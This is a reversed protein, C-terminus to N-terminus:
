SSYSFHHRVVTWNKPVIWIFNITLDFLDYLEDELNIMSKLDPSDKIKELLPSTIKKFFIEKLTKQSKIRKEQPNSKYEIDLEKLRSNIEQFVEDLKNQTLEECYNRVSHVINQNIKLKYKGKEVNIKYTKDFFIATLIDKQIRPFPKLSVGVSLNEENISQYVRKPTRGRHFGTELFDMFYKAINLAFNNKM